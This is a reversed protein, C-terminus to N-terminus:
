KINVIDPIIILTKEYPNMYINIFCFHSESVITYLENPYQATLMHHKGHIKNFVLFSILHTDM